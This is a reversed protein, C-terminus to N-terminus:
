SGRVFESSEITKATYEHCEDGNTYKIAFLSVLADQNNVTKHYEMLYKDIKKLIVGNKEFLKSLNDFNNILMEYVTDIKDFYMGIFKKDYNLFQLEFVITNDKVVTDNIVIYESYIDPYRKYFADINSNKKILRSIFEFIIEKNKM